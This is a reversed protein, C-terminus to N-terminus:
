KNEFLHWILSGGEMQFTDIYEIPGIRSIRNGTGYVSFVRERTPEGTDVLAWMVPEGHQMDAKLIKSNLPMQVGFLQALQIPYKYIVESM